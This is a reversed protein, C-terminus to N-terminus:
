NFNGRDEKSVNPELRLVVKTLAAFKRLVKEFEKWDVLQAEMESMGAKAKELLIKGEEFILRTKDKHKFEPVWGKLEFGQVWDRDRAHDRAHVDGTGRWDAWPDWAGGGGGTASRM